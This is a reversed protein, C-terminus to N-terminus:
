QNFSQPINKITMSTDENEAQDERTSTIRQRKNYSEFRASSCKANCEPCSFYPTCGRGLSVKLFCQGCLIHGCSIVFAQQSSHEASGCDSCCSMIYLLACIIFFSHQRVQYLDIMFEYIFTILLIRKIWNLLLLVRTPPSNPNHQPQAFFVSSPDYQPAM